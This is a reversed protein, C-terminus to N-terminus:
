FQSRAELDRCFAALDRANDKTLLNGSRLEPHSQFEFGYNVELIATVVKLLHPLEGHFDNEMKLKKWATQGNELPSGREVFQLLTEIQAIIKDDDLSSVAAQVFTGIVKPNDLFSKESDTDDSALAGLPRGVTRAMFNLTRIQQKPGMHYIKYEKGDIERNEPPKM